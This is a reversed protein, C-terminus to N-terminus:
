KASEIKVPEPTVGDLRKIIARVVDPANHWWDRSWVRMINWGKQELFRCSFVDRELPTRGDFVSKDTQIGLVYKDTKKDYVAVAIGEGLDTDVTYGLKTLKDAIQKEVPVVEPARKKEAPCLSNLIASIEANDGNSVARAYSLYTKFLKPGLNKTSEIKLEEPEISTIVYIKKKARTIAVNLRNEGGDASLSGFFANVKGSENKAYGISFIIIDREDGQVNEINKVFLGVDQGDEKRSRERTVLARFSDDTRCANDIADEICAQQESGFAIIGITENNKRSKFIKKLLAIAEEGERKNRRDKWVGNVKIREIPRNKLSRNVNPAIKLRNEYFAKNSFDILERSGSRYHYVINAADYRAVALDLLSEVELAAQMSLDEEEEEASGMYRRMFMATPRLQKADGAVVVSKGRIISPLTSEIFVQSAEDFLVVDFLDKKLPLITSVNEPSLLWCPYLSLLYKGFVDMTRRIPWFNQKKSIQYLYDKRDAGDDYMAKYEDIFSQACIKTNIAKQEALLANIRAKVDEFEVTLALAQKNKNEYNTVEHYIRVPLIKSLVDKYEDYSSTIQYAFKLVRKEAESFTDLNLYIATVKVYQALASKLNELANPNGSLIAEVALSYGGDTLVDKLFTWDSTFDEIAKRTKDYDAAVLREKKIMNHKAFPYLPFIIRSTCLFKYANPYAYAALTKILLKENSGEKLAAGHAVIQKSYPYANEEFVPTRSALLADLKSRCATLTDMDVDQELEHLFPNYKKEEVYNYYIDAKDKECVSEVAEKLTPYDYAMLKANKPMERWVGEEGARKGPIFSNYYMDLLSMGFASKESLTQTLRELKEEEVAIKADIEDRKAIYNATESSMVAKHRALCKDYFSARQRVPDVIFMAKDSLTGLRNYVVDLAAKKQSVVLVRKGKAIADTILNAITQSKGTGPPGYIVMNGSNAVKKVVSAQAFDLDSVTYFEKDDGGRKKATTKEPYLLENVGGSTLKRKELETYDNYISNALSYRALLCASIVETEDRLKPEVVKKFSKVGGRGRHLKIGFEDLYKLVDDVNTLGSAYMNDFETDIEETELRKAESYVYILAKNLRVAEGRKARLSVTNEGFEVEVPFFLLPAKVLVDKLAGVVFPYGIFMEYRGTESEIEEVERKLIRVANIEREIADGFFKKLSRSNKLAGLRKEEGSLKALEGNLRKEEDLLGLSRKLPAVDASLVTYSDRGEWITAIFEEFSEKDGEFLRGIDYGTKKSFTRTYVSRNKGSIEILREKYSTYISKM